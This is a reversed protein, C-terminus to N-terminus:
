RQDAHRGRRQPARSRQPARVQPPAYHARYMDVVQPLMTTFSGEAFSEHPANALQQTIVGSLLITWARLLEHPEVGSRFLGLAQLRAMVEVGREFVVVAPEYAERSPEYGPVPRWGMLQAYVPNQVSWRVFREGFEHLYAPLDTTEDPDGLAAMATRVERWGRAFVADYVAHKSAFYVYLSPPRVGMRRAVEGLSLGAVGQEAMVEVAEDVLQEITEARRVHRRDPRAVPDTVM